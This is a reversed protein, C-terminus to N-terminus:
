DDDMLDSGRRIISDGFRERLNDLTAELKAHEQSHSSKEWLGLQESQERFGSVGVGILRVPQGTTWVRDFLDLAATHIVEDHRTPHDLTIQRTITTFDSWRLKLKVTSGSLGEQRLRRGVGEALQRLTRRLTQGDREDRAFTTEKSISKTESEPEVPSEDIGKARKSLDAGHKGFRITLDSESWRALDGITRIGFKALVEATKPGVGWLERVPLPALFAAEQGVPVVLIANPPADRNTRAKGVNTAIKAVLKNTAVGLSCPLQLEDLITAQLQRALLEGDERRMTVDLFAEDISIQEVLPTIDHLREMVKASAASYRSHDPSVVILNPCIRVAQAMPMASHVGYRRAAYSCSSVVGRQNPKGGVAFPRGRLAPDRQEEVACYFADLDLHLITRPCTGM